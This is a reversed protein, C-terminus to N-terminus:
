PASPNPSNSSAFAIAERGTDLSRALSRAARCAPGELQHSATGVAGFPDGVHEGGEVSVLGHQLQRQLFASIQTLLQPLRGALQGLEAILRYADSPHRLAPCDTADGTAHNLSRIAENAARALALAEAPSDAMPGIEAPDPIASM